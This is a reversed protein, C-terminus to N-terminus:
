TLGTAYGIKQAIALYARGFPTKTLQLDGLTLRAFQEPVQVGVSTTESSSATVVGSNFGTLNFQQRYYEFFPMSNAFVIVPTQDQGWNLLYDTALNYTALTFQIPSVTQIAPNVIDQAYTFADNWSPDNYPLITSTIGAYTTAWTQFGSLTPTTDM